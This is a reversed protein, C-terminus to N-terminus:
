RLLPPCELPGAVKRLHLAQDYFRRDRPPIALGCATRSPFIISRAYAARSIVSASLSSAQPKATRRVNPYSIASGDEDQPSRRPLYSIALLQYSIAKLHRSMDRRRPPQCNAAPLQRLLSFSLAKRCCPLHKATQNAPECKRCTHCIDATPSIVSRRIHIYNYTGTRIPSLMPAIANRAIRNVVPCALLGQSMHVM